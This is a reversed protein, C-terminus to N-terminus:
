DVPVVQLADFWAQGAGMLRLGPSDRGAKQSATFEVAYEQWDTTLAHTGGAEDVADLALFFRQGEYEGRAWISLRYQKGPSLQVPFPMVRIGEGETPTRLRLSQRGHVAERPDAFWSAAQDGGFSLYSGDPTGVNHAEEFSGNVTLNKPDMKVRDEPGAAIQLRYVRTGFADIMDNLKGGAVAVTRNEFMVEANGDFPAAVSLELPLPKNEVSAALITVAGRDMFATVHLQPTASTVRPAEEPSCLAPTLQSIELMLRRIEGWLSPSSPNVTPPRRIFPQVGKCGHILALYTMARMEQRSPERQWWEGGGFAQPVIWLPLADFTDRRIGDCFDVVNTIPGNPIPYPDTMIIDMGKAYRAAAQSQCFVMTVPHTPDLEKLKQYGRECQEPTAWGLEPEDALYYSLLAPHDRFAAVEEKLWAWKAEDQPEQSAFRVDLQVKLGVQACRDFLKMLKERGQRRGEADGDLYPSIANIGQTAEEEVVREVSGYDAYVSQPVWPRGNVILTHTRRDVVVARPSREALWLECNATGLKEEGRLLTAVIQNRGQALSTLPVAVEGVKDATVAAEGLQGQPGAVTVRLGEGVEKAVRALVYGRDGTQFPMLGPTITLMTPVEVPLPPSQYLLKGAASLELHCIYRGPGPLAVSLKVPAPTAGLAVEAKEAAPPEVNDAVLRATVKEPGGELRTLTMGVTLKEGVAKDPASLDSIRVGGVELPAPTYVFEGSWSQAVGMPCEADRGLWLHQRNAYDYLTLPVTAAVTLKGFLNEFEARTQGSIPNSGGAFTLPITGEQDGGPGSAKWRAGVFWGTAPTCLCVEYNMAQAWATQTYTYAISWKDGPGATVVEQWALKPDTCTVALVKQEGVTALKADLKDAGSSSYSWAWGQPYVVVPSISGGLLKRGDCTVVLGEDLSWRIHCRDLPIDVPATDAYLWSVAAVCCLILLLRM